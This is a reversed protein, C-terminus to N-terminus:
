PIDILWTIWARCISLIVIDPPCTLPSLRSSRTLTVPWNVVTSSTPFTAMRDGPPVLTFILSRARTSSPNLSTLWILRRFPCGLRPKLMWFCVFALGTRTTRATRAAKDSICVSSGPLKSTAVTRSWASNISFTILLTALFMAMPPTSAMSTSNMKKRLMRLVRTMAREMGIEM